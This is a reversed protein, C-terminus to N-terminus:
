DRRRNLSIGGISITNDDFEDIVMSHSGQSLSADDDISSFDRGMIRSTIFHGSVDNWTKGKLKQEKWYNYIAMTDNVINKDGVIDLITSFRDWELDSEDTFESKQEKWYNFLAAANNVREKDGAIDLIYKFRKWKDSTQGSPDAKQEKWYNYMTITGNITNKKGIMALIYRFRDWEEVEEGAQEAEQKKWQCYLTVAMETRNEGGIIDLINKFIGWEKAIEETREAGPALTRYVRLALGNNTFKSPLDALGSEPDSQLGRYLSDRSSQLLTKTEKTQIVCSPEANTNLIALRESRPLNGFELKRLSENKNDLISIFRDLAAAYEENSVETSTLSTYIKLAIDPDRFRKILNAFGATHDRALGKIIASQLENKYCNSNTYMGPGYLHSCDEYLRLRAARSLPETQLKEISDAFVIRSYAAQILSAGGDHMGPREEAGFIKKLRGLLAKDEGGANVLLYLTALEHLSMQSIDKLQLGSEEVSDALKAIYIGYDPSQQMTALGDQLAPLFPTIVKDLEQVSSGMCFTMEVLDTMNKLACEPTLKGSKLREAIEACVDRRHVNLLMEVSKNEQKQLLYKSLISRLRSKEPDDGCIGQLLAIVTISDKDISEISKCDNLASELKSLMHTKIKKDNGALEYVDQMLVSMDTKKTVAAISGLMNSAQPDSLIREILLSAPSAKNDKSNSHCMEEYFGADIANMARLVKVAGRFDSDQKTISQGATGSPTAIRLKLMEIHESDPMWQHNTIKDALSDWIENGLYPIDTNMLDSEPSKADSISALAGDVSPKVPANKGGSAKGAKIASAREAREHFRSRLLKLAPSGKSDAEKAIDKYLSLVEDPQVTKGRSKVDLVRNILKQTSSLIVLPGCDFDSEVIDTGSIQLSGMSGDDMVLLTPPSKLSPTEETSAKLEQLVRGPVTPATGSQENSPQKGKEPLKLSDKIQIDAEESSAELHEAKGSPTVEKLFTRLDQVRSIDGSINGMYNM